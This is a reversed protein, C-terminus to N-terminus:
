SPPSSGVGVPSTLLPPSALEGRSVRGTLSLTTYYAAPPSPTVTGGGDVPSTLLPTLEGDVPSTLLPTLEGDVPSTLLPACSV